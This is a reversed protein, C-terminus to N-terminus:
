FTLILLRAERRAEVSRRALTAGLSAPSVRKIAVATKDRASCPGIADAWFGMAMRQTEFHAMMQWPLRHAEIM